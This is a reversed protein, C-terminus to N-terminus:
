RGREDRRRDWREEIRDMFGSSAQQGSSQQKSAGRGQQTSRASKPRSIALLVGGFMAIFGLVGLWIHGSAVGAVLLTLGVIVAGAGLGARRVSFKRDAALQSAFRPDDSRLQEEMQHLVRQEYESLPM